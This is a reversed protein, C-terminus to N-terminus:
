RWNSPFFRWKREERRRELQKDDVSKGEELDQAEKQKREKELRQERRRNLRDYVFLILCTILVPVTINYFMMPDFHLPSEISAKASNYLGTTFPTIVAGIMAAIIIWIIRSLPKESL